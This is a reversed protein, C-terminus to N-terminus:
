PIDESSPLNAPFDYSADPGLFAQTPGLDEGLSTSRKLPNSKALAMWLAFPLEPMARKPAPRIVELGQGTTVMVGCTSPIEEAEGIPKGKANRGLVYWCQSAVDLYAARKTALKLDGLLDARSVKIEHVIPELYNQKSSNRISFVDPKCLKWHGTTQDQPPIWARLELATWVLRGDHQMATAVQQVLAEHATFAQRNRQATQALYQIGANTVRVCELSNGADIRELLGEALLDIEIGDLHPWGASRYVERLRKAHVRTLAIATSVGPTHTMTM